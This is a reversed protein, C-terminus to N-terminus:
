MWVHSNSFGYNQSYPGKDVFDLRQKKIEMYIGANPYSWWNLSDGLVVSQWKKPIKLFVLLTKLLSM